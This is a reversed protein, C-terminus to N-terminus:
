AAENPGDLVPESLPSLWGSLAYLAPLLFSWVIAYTLAGAWWGSPFSLAGLQVGAIYSTAGGFAGFLVQLLPRGILWGLSYSLTAPFLFWLGLLWLPCIPWGPVMPNTAQAIGAAFIASDIAFGAATCLSIFALESRPRSSFYVLHLGILPFVALPGLWPLGHAAGLITLWWGAQFGAANILDSRKM